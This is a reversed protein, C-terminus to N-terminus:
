ERSLIIAPDQRAALMAPFWSAAVAIAMAVALALGLLGLDLRGVLSGGAFGAVGGVLGMVAARFMFLLFVQWSLYGLARLIGIEEQRDRVNGVALLTFWAVCVLLVLATLVGAFRARGERLTARGEREREIAARGEKEADTRAKVSTLVKSAKEIV